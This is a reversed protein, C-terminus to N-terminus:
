GAGSPGHRGRRGLGRRHLVYGKAGAGQTNTWGSLFRLKESWLLLDRVPVKEQLSELPRHDDGGADQLGLYLKHM